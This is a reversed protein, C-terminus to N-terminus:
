KIGDSKLFEIDVEDVYFDDILEIKKHNIGINSIVDINEEEIYSLNVLVIENGQIFIVFERDDDLYFIENNVHSNDHRYKLLITMNEDDVLRDARYIGKYREELKDILLKKNHVLDLDYTFKYEYANYCRDLLDMTLDFGNYEEIETISFCKVDFLKRGSNNGETSFSLNSRFKYSCRGNNILTEIEVERAEKYLMADKGTNENYISDIRSTINNEIIKNVIMSYGEDIHLKRFQKFDNLINILISDIECMDEPFYSKFVYILELVIRRYNVMRNLSLKKFRGKNIDKDKENLNINRNNDNIYSVNCDTIRKNNGINIVGLDESKDCQSESVNYEFKIENNTLFYRFFKRDENVFKMMYYHIFAQSTELPESLKMYLKEEEEYSISSNIDTNIDVYENYISLLEYFSKELGEYRDVINKELDTNDIINKNGIDNIYNIDQNHTIINKFIDNNIFRSYLRSNTIHKSKICDRLYKEKNKVLKFINEGEKNLQVIKKSYDDVDDRLIGKYHSIFKYVRENYGYIMKILNIYEKESLNVFKSGLPIYQKEYKNIGLIEIGTEYDLICNEFIDVRMMEYITNKEEDIWRTYIFLSNMLISQSCRSDIFKM